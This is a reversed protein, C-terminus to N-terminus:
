APEQPLSAHSPSLFVSSTIAMETLASHEPIQVGALCHLLRLQTLEVRHLAPSLHGCRMAYSNEVSWLSGTKVIKDRQLRRM